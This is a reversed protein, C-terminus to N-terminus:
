KKINVSERYWGTTNEGIWIDMNYSLFLVRPHEFVINSLQLIICSKM